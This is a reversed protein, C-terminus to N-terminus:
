VSGSLSAKTKWAKPGESVTLPERNTWGNKISVLLWM